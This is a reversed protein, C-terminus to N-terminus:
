VEHHGLFLIPIGLSLSPSEDPQLCDLLVVFGFKPPRVFVHRIAKALIPIRTQKIERKWQNVVSCELLILPRELANSISSPRSRYNVPHPVKSAHSTIMSPSPGAARREAASAALCPADVSTM